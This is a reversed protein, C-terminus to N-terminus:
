IKLKYVKAMPNLIVPEFLEKDYNELAFMQIYTSNFMKSDLILFQNYSKLFIVSLPSSRDIIQIQKRLVGKNDYKTVCFNNIGLTQEGIQIKGQKKLIKIGNGLEIVDANDKFRRSQYFFPRAKKNGTVLDLNSFVTVTPFINLMRQPLYLFIDRTKLPLKYDGLRLEDLLINPDTQNATKNKFIEDAVIKYDSNVYTEVALRSLNAAQIQSDTNLIKSVIFNDHNHKGGDILTNTNSYYWIPYGYDWWTVTYDKPDSVKKLDDLIQVESKNFVTPVKYAVIHKINPVLMGLTLITIVGYKVIKNEVSSVLVYFLFVSSLAAVPVAYVTFRLGGWLSFIGIGILPLALIFPRYKIVLLVYGILATLVGIVSGSIRNAMVEFPIKGAERVTQAVQFFKLGEQEVGRIAYGAVKAWILSIVNGSVLFFVVAVASAIAIHKLPFTKYRFLFYLGAILALKIFWPIGFLAISILIISQYTFEERRHFVIMYAMYILGMAYVISLGSDYLFPYILIVLSSFLANNLSEDEITKILFYLIFMPAMASFMDTDYYGVMTRNYYSWAISGILAAFFGWSTHNYIRAILIIPIVVLSSVVAPMYLVITDLSFPLVKAALYTFFVTGYKFMDVVRPNNEFSNNLEHLVSSAWIYGDNTNIMLQDNWYFNDIGNFQYVWILRMAISFTYAFLILGILYTKNINEEKINFM